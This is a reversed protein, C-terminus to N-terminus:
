RALNDCAWMPIRRGSSALRFTESKWFAKLCVLAWLRLTPRARRPFFNERVWRSAIELTSVPRFSGLSTFCFSRICRCVFAHFFRIDLIMRPRLSLLIVLAFIDVACLPLVTDGSSLARIEAVSFPLFRGSMELAKFPLFRGSMEAANFPLFRGSMDLARFAEQVGSRRAALDKNKFFNRASPRIGGRLPQFSDWSCRSVM